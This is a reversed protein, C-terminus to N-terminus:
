SSTYRRRPELTLPLLAAILYDMVRLRFLTGFNTVTYMLPGATLLFVLLLLIFLPTVRAHSRLARVCYVFAFLVVLDFVLTDIDVFFWFGRGGGIRILGLAQALTKPIFMATFGTALAPAVPPVVALPKEKKPRQPLPALVTGVPPSVVVSPKERKPPQPLPALAPRVSPSVVLSTKEEKLPQPFPALAPRVSPSVVLSTKEEKLPQPLPALATGVSPSVVLSTKEEKPPQPL